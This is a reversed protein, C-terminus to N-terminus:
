RCDNIVPRMAADIRAQNMGRFDIQGRKEELCYLGSLTNIQARRISNNFGYKRAPVALFAIAVRHNKANVLRKRVGEYFAVTGGQSDLVV